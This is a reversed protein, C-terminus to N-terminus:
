KKSPNLPKSKEKKPPEELDSRIYIEEQRNDLKAAYRAATFLFDSLRNLYILAQTDIEGSLVLPSVCREARRCVTRAVHLAASAKGGGPLIFNQLPPLEHTYEDIWEELETAHRESFGVKKLHAERASSKPTAIVASIDISHQECYSHDGELAYERAMAIHSSLEDTSGLANFILDNKPRREGTFLASTGKDGTRTYIKFEHRSQSSSITQAQIWGPSISMRLRDGSMFRAKHRAFHPDSGLKTRCSEILKSSWRCAM